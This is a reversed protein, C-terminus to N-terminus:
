NTTVTSLLGLVDIGYIHKFIITNEITEMNLFVLSSGGLSIAFKVMICIILVVVVAEAFGLIGGLGKNMSSVLPIKNLIQSANAIVNLVILAIIFLLIFVIVKLPTMVVPNIIEDLIIKEIDQNEFHILSIILKYMAGNASNIIDDGLTDSVFAINKSIEDAVNHVAEYIDGGDRITTTLVHALVIKEIGYKDYDAKSIETSGVKIDDYKFGSGKIGFSSLDASPAGTESIDIKSLDIILTEKGAFEVNYGSLYSDKIKIKGLDLESIGKINEIEVLDDINEEIYEQVPKEIASEYILVSITSSGIYAILFAAVLSVTSVIVGVAGKSVGKYIFAAILGVILIDYFWFFESGM